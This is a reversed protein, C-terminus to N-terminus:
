TSAIKKIVVKNGLKILKGRYDEHYPLENLVERFRKIFNSSKVGIGVIGIKVQPKSKVLNIFHKDNKTIIHVDEVTSKNLIEPDPSSANGTVQQVSYFRAKKINYESVFDQYYINQDVVFRPKRGRRKM